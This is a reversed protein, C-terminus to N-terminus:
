RAVRAYGIERRVALKEPQGPLVLTAPRHEGFAGRCALAFAKAFNYNFYGALTAAIVKGSQSVGSVREAVHAISFTPLTPALDTPFRVNIM